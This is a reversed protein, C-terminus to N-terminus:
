YEGRLTYLPNEAYSRRGKENVCAYVRYAPRRRSGGNPHEKAPRAGAGGERRPGPGSGAQRCPWLRKGHPFRAGPLDAFGGDGGPRHPVRRTGKGRFAAARERWFFPSKEEKLIFFGGRGTLIRFPVFPSARMLSKNLNNWGRKTPKVAKNFCSTHNIRCLIRSFLGAPVACAGLGGGDGKEGRLVWVAPFPVCAFASGAKGGSCRPM